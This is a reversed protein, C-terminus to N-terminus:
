TSNTVFATVWPTSAIMTDFLAPSWISGATWSAASAPMATTLQSEGIGDPAPSLRNTAWTSKSSVPVTIASM